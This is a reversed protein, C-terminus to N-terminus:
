LCLVIKFIPWRAFAMAKAHAIAKAFYEVQALFRFERFCTLISQALKVSLNQAFVREFFCWINRFHSSKLFRGHQRQM